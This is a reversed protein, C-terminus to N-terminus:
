QKSERVRHHVPPLLNNLKALATKYASQDHQASAIILETEAISWDLPNPGENRAQKSLKAYELAASRNDLKLEVEALWLYIDGCWSSALGGSKCSDLISKSSYLQKAAKEPRGLALEIRGLISQVRNTVRSQSGFTQDVRVLLDEVMPLAGEARGSQWLVQAYNIEAAIRVLSSEPLTKIALANAALASIEAERLRGARLELRALNSHKSTMEPHEAGFREISQTICDQMLARSRQNHNLALLDLALNCRTNIINPDLLEGNADAMALAEESIEMAKETDGAARLAAAINALSRTLAKSDQERYALNIMHARQMAVLAQDPDLRMSAKGYETWADWGLETETLGVQELRDTTEISLTVAAEYNGRTRHEKVLDIMAAIVEPSSLSRTSTWYKLVEKRMSLSKDYQGIGHYGSAIIQKISAQVDRSDGLETLQSTADDMLQLLTVDKEGSNYPGARAFLGKVFTTVQQALFTEQQAVRYQWLATGLGLALALFVATTAVVLLRNRRVFKSILYSNSPYRANVPWHELYNGLDDRLRDVTSYRDDPRKETCKGVISILDKSCALHEALMNKLLVGLSFIDSRVDIADGSMQEPSAYVPSFATLPRDISASDNDGLFRGIGFDFLKVTDNEVFVNGPKIDGHIILQRHCYAIADCIQRFAVLRTSLTVGGAYKDIPVGDVYEMIYYPASDAAIGADIIRAINPHELKAVHAREREFLARRQETMLVNPLFKVAVQQEFTGDTRRALYVVGMGGRSLLREICYPGLTEGTREGANDSVLAGILDPASTDLSSLTISENLAFGLLSQLRQRLKKDGGAIQELLADRDEVKADLLRDLAQEIIRHAATAQRNSM